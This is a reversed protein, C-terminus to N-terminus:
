DKIFEYRKLETKLEEIRTKVHIICRNLTDNMEYDSKMSLFYRLINTCVEIQCILRYSELPLEKEELIEKNEYPKPEFYQGLQKFVDIM